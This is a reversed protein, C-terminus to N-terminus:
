ANYSSFVGLVGWFGSPPYPLVGWFGLFGLFRPKEGGGQIIDVGLIGAVGRKEPGEGPARSNYM